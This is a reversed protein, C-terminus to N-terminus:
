LKGLIAAVPKTQISGQMIISRGGFNDRINEDIEKREARGSVKAMVTNMGPRKTTADLSSTKKSKKDSNKIVKNIIELLKPLDLPKDLYDQIEYLHVLRKRNAQAEYIGSMMIVPLDLTNPHFRIRELLEFGNYNPLMIDLLAIDFPTEDLLALASDGDECVSVQLGEASLFDFLVDRLAEDDDVVLIRNM